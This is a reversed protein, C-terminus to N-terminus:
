YEIFALVIASWLGILLSLTLTERLRRLVNSATSTPPVTANFVLTRYEQSLKAHKENSRCVIQVLWLPTEGNSRVKGPSSKRDRYMKYWSSRSLSFLVTFFGICPFRRVPPRM